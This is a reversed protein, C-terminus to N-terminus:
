PRVHDLKGAAASYSALDCDGPGIIVDINYKAFTENISKAVSAIHALTKETKNDINEYNLSAELRGQDPYEDTLAEKQHAKNWEVLSQLSHVKTRNLSKLYADLAPKFEATLMTLIANTGDLEFDKPPRLTVNEHYEKALSKIRAYADLTEETMQKIAEPVFKLYKDDKGGTGMWIEPDLTGVKIDGWHTTVATRYGAEPVRTTEKDVLITLMDAIDIVSKGMPGAIDYRASIPVIGAQPIIGLTARVTYLSARTAPMVLSGKTETGIAVPALGASAAIASGSSSGGPSQGRGNSLLNEPNTQKFSVSHGGLGDNMDQGGRVYASQGHGAAASWGCRINDGKWYSMESLTAKAFVVGGAELLREVIPASTAPESDMLAVAGACTGMQLHAPTCINDKILVPIGHLPGLIRGQARLEDMERARDMATPSLECVANLYGNHKLIARQYEELIQTSKIAGTSLSTQLSSVTAKSTNFLPSRDQESLFKPSWGTLNAQSRSRMAM